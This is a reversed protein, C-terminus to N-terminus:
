EKRNRNECERAAERGSDARRRGAKQWPHRSVQHRTARMYQKLVSGAKDILATVKRAHLRIPTCIRTPSNGFEVFCM